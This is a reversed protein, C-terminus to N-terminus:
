NKAVVSLYTRNKFPPLINTIRVDDVYWGDYSALNGVDGGWRFRIRVSSGAFTSLDVKVERWGGSNGSWAPEGGLPNGSVHEAESSSSPRM